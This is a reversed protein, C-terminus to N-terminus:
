TLMVRMGADSILRVANDLEFWAYHPDQPNRASFRAPRRKGAPAIRRWSAHLRVVEVGRTAWAKVVSATDHVDSLMLREDEIGVELDASGAAVDVRLLALLVLLYAFVRFM